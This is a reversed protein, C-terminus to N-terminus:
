SNKMVVGQVIDAVDECADLVNEMDDLIDKWKIIDFINEHDMFMKKIADRYQRDGEEEISNVSIALEHIKSKNKKYTKFAVLLEVLLDTAKFILDGIQMAEPKIATIHFMDFRNAVDEILDTIDDISKILAYIDERDIPTIFAINLADCLRHTEHDAAHELDHIERAKRTVDTYDHMLDILREATQHSYRIAMILIDFYNTEEKKRAM